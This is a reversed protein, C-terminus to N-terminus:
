ERSRGNERIKQLLAALDQVVAPQASILNKTEALDATLDYLEPEAPAKQKDAKAQKGKKGPPGGAAIYKWNGKRLALLNAHEVLHDRGQPSQGLLAPLVNLSDPAANQALKQETLEALSAILDLQSVLANSTGPRIRAPWRVLFPVRTGGEYISYKGGRLPGAPKHEGLKEVAQDAYGDDLVPGNDSSFIVLTNEALKLRDLAGLVEGVCWDLQEIVDGRPGLSTKGAFRGHPVRPVHIDHTSLFLFFPSQAHQEIFKV